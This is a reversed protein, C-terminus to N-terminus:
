KVWVPDWDNWDKWGSLNRLNTGDANMVWIQKRGGLRNSWFVIKTGDPSWSPHEDWEWKNSTLHKAGTGDINIVWIEDNGTDKSVFAIKDGRPSWAPDWAGSNEGMQTVQKETRYKFDVFFIQPVDRTERVFALPPGQGRKNLSLIKGFDKTTTYHQRLTSTGGQLM